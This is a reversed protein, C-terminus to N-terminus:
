NRGSTPPLRIADADDMMVEPEFLLDAAAASMDCDLRM